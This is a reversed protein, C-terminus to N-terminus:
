KEDDDGDTIKRLKSRFYVTGGSVPVDVEVIDEEFNDDFNDDFKGMFLELLLDGNNILYDKLIDDKEIVHKNTQIYKLCFTELHKNNFQRSILLVDCLKDKVFNCALKSCKNSLEPCGYYESIEILKKLTEFENIKIEGGYLYTLLLNFSQEDCDNIILENNKNEKFSSGFLSSFYTLQCLILKHTNIIKGKKTKVVFDSLFGSKFYKLFVDNNDPLITIYKGKFKYGRSIYKNIRQEDDNDKNTYIHNTSTHGRKYINKGDFAVACFEFDIEKLFEHINKYKILSLTLTLGEGYICYIQTCKLHGFHDNKFYDIKYGQEEFKKVLHRFKKNDSCWLNIDNYQWKSNEVFNLVFSGAVFCKDSLTVISTLKNWDSNQPLNGNFEYYNIDM